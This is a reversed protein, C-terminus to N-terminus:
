QLIKRAKEKSGNDYRRTIIWKKTPINYKEAQAATTAGYHYKSSFDENFIKKLAKVAEEPMELADAVQSIYIYGHENLAQEIVQELRSYLKQKGPFSKKSNIPYIENALDQLGAAMLKNRGINGKTVQHDKLLQTRTEVQHLYEKTYKPISIVNIPRPKNTEKLFEENIRTMSGPTQQQKKLFGMACLYNFYRSATGTSQNKRFEYTVRNNDIHNVYRQNWIVPTTNKSFNLIKLLLDRLPQREQDTELVYHINKYRKQLHYIVYINHKIIAKANDQSRNGKSKCKKMTKHEKM